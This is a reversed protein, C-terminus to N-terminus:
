HKGNGNKTIKNLKDLFSLRNPDHKKLDEKIIKDTISEIIEQPPKSPQVPLTTTEKIKEMAKDNVEVYDVDITKAAKTEAELDASYGEKLLSPLDTTKMKALLEKLRVLDEFNQKDFNYQAIIKKKYFNNLQVRFTKSHLGMVKEKAVLADMAIVLSDILMYKRMEPPVHSFDDITKEFNEEFLKEYRKVHTNILSEREQISQQKIKDNAYYIDHRMQKERGLSILYKEVDKVNDGKRYMEIIADNLEERKQATLFNAKDRKQKVKKM